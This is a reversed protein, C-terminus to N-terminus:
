WRRNGGYQRYSVFYGRYFGERYASNGSRYHSSNNPDAIRHTQADERGRDLGDRYGRQEESSNGYNGYGYNNYGYNGYNRYTYPYARYVRRQRELLARQRERERELEWDRRQEHNRWQERNRWQDQNRWEHDRHEERRWTERRDQQRDRQFEPRVQRQPLQLRNQNQPQVQPQIQRESHRENRQSQRNRWDQAQATLGPVILGIGLSLGLAYLKFHQIKM